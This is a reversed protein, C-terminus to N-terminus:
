GAAGRGFQVSIIVWSHDGLEELQEDAIRYPGQLGYLDAAIGGSEYQAAMEQIISSAVERFSKADQAPTLNSTTSRLIEIRLSGQARWCQDTSGGTAIRAYSWSEIDAEYAVIAYPRLNILEQKTYAEAVPKPLADQFVKDLAETADVAGVLSQFTPCNSLTSCVLDQAVQIIM